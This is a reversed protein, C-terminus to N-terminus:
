PKPNLTQPTGHAKGQFNCLSAAFSMVFTSPARSSSSGLACALSNPPRSFRHTASSSVLCAAALLKLRRHCSNAPAITILACAWVRLLYSAFMPVALSKLAGERQIPPKRFDPVGFISGSYYSGGSLFAGLLTGGLM